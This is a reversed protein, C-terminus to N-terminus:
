RTILNLVKTNTAKDVLQLCSTADRLDIGAKRIYIMMTKIDKWGGMAMVKVPPVDESLLLTAWTARLDHFRIEPLGVGVLFKRLERAQEGKIWKNLRPLVFENDKSTLRLEKLDQILESALPVIREDGSKTSKFGDKNNWSQQIKIQKEEFSIDKWRLAFLEGNRMGTYLAMLWHYYWSSNNIKAFTLLKSAETRSLVKSNKSGFKFKMNPTPNRSIYNKELAFQFVRRIFKLMNKQHSKSKSSLGNILNRIMSDNIKEVGIKYWCQTHKNLCSMYTDVTKTEVGTKLYYPAFEELLQKWNPIDQRIIAEEVEIVLKNYVRKAEALTSIEKKLGTQNKFHTRMRNVSKSTKPNRKSYSVRYIKKEKLFKIGM